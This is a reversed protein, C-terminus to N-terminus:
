SIFLYFLKRVLRSAASRKASGAFEIFDCLRYHEEGRVVTAVDICDLEENIATLSLNLGASQPKECGNM